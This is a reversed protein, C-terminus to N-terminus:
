ESEKCRGPFMKGLMLPLFTIRFPVSVFYVIIGFGYSVLLMVHGGEVTLAVAISFIIIGGIAVFLGVMFLLVEPIIYKSLYDVPRVLYHDDTENVVVFGLHFVFVTLFSALAFGILYTVSMM